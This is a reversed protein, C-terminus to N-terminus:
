TRPLCIKRTKKPAKEVEVKEVEAHVEDGDEM